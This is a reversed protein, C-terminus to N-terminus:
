RAKKRLMSHVPSRRARVMYNSAPEGWGLQMAGRASEPGHGTGKRASAERVAGSLILLVLHGEREARGQGATQM